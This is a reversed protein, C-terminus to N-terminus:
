SRRGGAAAGSPHRSGELLALLLPFDSLPLGAEFVYSHVFFGCSPCCGVGSWSGGGTPSWSLATSVGCYGCNLTKPRDVTADMASVKVM